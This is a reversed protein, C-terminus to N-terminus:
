MKDSTNKMCHTFSWRATIVRVKTGANKKLQRFELYEDITNQILVTCLWASRFFGTATLLSMM